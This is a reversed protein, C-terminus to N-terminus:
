DEEYKAELTITQLKVGSLLFDEKYDINEIDIRGYKNHRFMVVCDDSYSNLIEKLEKVTMIDSWYLRLVHM